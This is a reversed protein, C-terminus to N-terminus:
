KVPAAADPEAKVIEFDIWQVVPVIKKKDGAKDSIVVQLYYNGPELDALRLASNVFLRDPDPQNATQVPAAPGSYVNKGDRFLRAEVVPNVFQSANYIVYAFHLNSNQAFRRTGPNAMTDRVDGAVTGLVIGSVALNKKQLDPVEVFQGASGIQSSTRDRIAVRVQYDGPWKVPLDISFGLGNKVVHAYESESFRITAGRKLQEVIAGNNGFIVSHFEISAQRLDDVKTFALDKPSVFVFSRVISGATKDNAFFSTLDVEINQAEFPSALALNTMDRTTLRSHSAEEETVGFFGFRSRVSM